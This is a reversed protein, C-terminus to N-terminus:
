LMMWLFTRVSILWHRLHHLRDLAMMPNGNWAPLECYIKALCFSITEFQNRVLTRDKQLNPDMDMVYDLEISAKDTLGLMIWAVIRLEFIGFIEM